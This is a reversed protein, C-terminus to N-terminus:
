TEALKLIAKALIDLGLHKCLNAVNRVQQVLMKDVFRDCYLYELLHLFSTKNNVDPLYIEEKPKAFYVSKIFSSSSNLFNSQLEDSSNSQFEHFMLRFLVLGKNASVKTRSPTDLVFM